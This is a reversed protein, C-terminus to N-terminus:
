LGGILIPFLISLILDDIEKSPTHPTTIANDLHADEGMEEQQSVPQETATVRPFPRCVVPLPGSVPFYWLKKDNWVLIPFDPYFQRFPKNILDFEGYDDIVM